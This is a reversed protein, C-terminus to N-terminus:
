VGKFGGSAWGSLVSGLLGGVAGGSTKSTSQGNSTMYRGLLGSIADAYGQAPVMPLATATTAIGALNRGADNQYGREREYNGFRLRTRNDALGRTLANTHYGSGFRSNFQSNVQDTIERDGQEIMGDVYPNGDLYKGDLTDGYFQSASLLGPQFQKSVALSEDYAPKLTAAAADIQPAYAANPAITEQSKTKTKKSSLGM